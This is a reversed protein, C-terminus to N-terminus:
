CATPSPANRQTAALFRKRFVLACILACLSGFLPAQLDVATYALDRVSQVQGTWVDFFPFLCALLFGLMTAEVAFRWPSRVRRARLYMSGSGALGAFLGFSGCAIATFPFLWAAAKLFQIPRWSRKHQLHEPAVLGNGVVKDEIGAGGFLAIALAAVLTVLLANFVGAKFILGLSRYRSDEHQRTMHTHVGILRDFIGIEDTPSL